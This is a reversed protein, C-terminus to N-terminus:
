SKEYVYVLIPLESGFSAIAIMNYENNWAVDTVLDNVYCEWSSNDEMLGRPIDWLYSKGDESGSLVYLGDPSVCSRCAYKNLRAGFFRTDM